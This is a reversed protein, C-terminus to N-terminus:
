IEEKRIRFIRVGDKVPIVLVGDGKALVSLMDKIAQEDLQRNKYLKM